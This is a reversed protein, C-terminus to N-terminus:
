LKNKLMTRGVDVLDALGQKSVGLNRAMAVPDRRYVYWWRVAERHKEPLHYIAKEVVVADLTNVPMPIHPAIDWHRASGSKRWMPHVASGWSPRCWRAWNVLREHIAIQEPPVRNFDIVDKM